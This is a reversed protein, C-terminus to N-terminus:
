VSRSARPSPLGALRPLRTALLHDPPLRCPPWRRGLTSASEGSAPSWAAELAGLGGPTPASRSSQRAWASREGPRVVCPRSAALSAAISRHLRHDRRGLWRVPRRAPRRDRFRVSARASSKVFGVVSACSAAARATALV